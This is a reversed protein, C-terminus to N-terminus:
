YNLKKGIQRKKKRAPRRSPLIDAYSINNSIRSHWMWGVLRGSSLAHRKRLYEFRIIRLLIEKYCL